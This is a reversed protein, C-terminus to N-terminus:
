LRLMGKLDNLQDFLDRIDDKDIAKQIREKVIDIRYYTLNDYEIIKRMIYGFTDTEFDKRTTEIMSLYIKRGGMFHLDVGGFSNSTIKFDKSSNFEGSDLRVFGYKRMLDTIFIKQAEFDAMDFTGLYEQRFSDNNYEDFVINTFSKGRNM